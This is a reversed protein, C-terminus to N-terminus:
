RPQPVIRIYPKPSKWGGFIVKAQDDPVSNHIMVDDGQNWGAPTVVRHRTTLQLSDIVRLLEAFNRGTVNPYAIILKIKKDPSIVFVTRVTLNDLACRSSADGSAAAPLMGYLKSVNLDTDGIIPYGPRTGQTEEIDDAWAQHRETADVSLGIVKVGRREFEPALKAMQGLETTCVPTFDKPHSFLVAWSDGIWEHFSIRGQTTDAEFDPATDNISLGMQRVGTENAITTHKVAQQEARERHRRWSSTGSSATKRIAAIISMESEELRKTQWRLDGRWGLAHWSQVPPVHCQAKGEGAAGGGALGGPRPVAAATDRNRAATPRRSMLRGLHPAEQPRAQGRQDAPGRARDHDAAPVQPRGPAAQRIPHARRRHRGRGPAAVRVRRGGRRAPGGAPGGSRGPRGGPPRGAGGRRRAPLRQLWGPHDPGEEQGVRLPLRRRGPPRHRRHAALRGRPGRHGALELLRDDRWPLPRLDRRGPRGFLTRGNEDLISVECGPVPLGASGARRAGLSNASIFSAAETCGYGEYILAGPVRAEFERRVEDPLPSAGSVVTTLESLGAEELPQGLLMQIMSPVLASGQARHQGALKVWGAPDFWRMLVTRARETRHLGGCLVLLGYVHALPLPLVSTVVNARVSIENMAWGCWFLNAHTLPVGKSRGTTGGTFLLAALDTGSRDTITGPEAAAVQDFDLLPVGPAARGPGGAAAGPVAVFRVAPAGDLAAAVKPLFEATTVVGVAGSDVLANRLEDESALFILPTVVAGARWAARYTILVEPCNAMLVVLRDGHRVGLDALGTAFRAARDALSGSSHWQGEYFLSDYDGQRDLALEAQRALNEENM